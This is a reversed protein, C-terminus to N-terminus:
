ELSVTSNYDSVAKVSPEETDIRVDIVYPGTRELGERVARGVESASTVKTADCGFGTAIDVFDPSNWSFRQGNGYEQIESSKSITAYDGNNFIVTVIDLNNEVATHFEQLCMLLGGDGTLCVIPIDSTALKAGIAGPLGVGMGAWSGATIYRDASYAPFVQKAWLRFGGVDTIIITDDPTVSRIERLVAPTKAPEDAKLLGHTQLQNIYERRISQGIAEGNWGYQGESLRTLLENVADAVDAVIAIDASYSRNIDDSNINVHILTEGMPLSWHDTSVGDFDCGLALVTDAMELVRRGGAPLHSGTIGIFEPRDEPFVGKGKYTGFVPVELMDVLETISNQSNAARRAGGGIYIVPTEASKLATKAKKYSQKNDFDTTAPEYSVRSADVETQLFGSPIGLRVPGYPQSLAIEIGERIRKKLTHTKTVSINAKVVNDFTNPEIEHIPRKGRDSPNVDASIHIIPVNDNYANKLGHMANTDGPGPVTLTSAPNGSAEYYGWAIHPIATEHRAMIYRMDDREAITRDLPLTQTGPLGILTSIDADVLADYVVESGQKSHDEAM